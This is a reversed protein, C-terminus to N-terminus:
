GSLSFVNKYIWDAVFCFSIVRTKEGKGSTAHKGASLLPQMNERAQCLNCTKGRNASNAQKGASPLPDMNERVNCLICTEGRSASPDTKGRSASTAYKGAIPLPQVNEGATVGTANKRDLEQLFL